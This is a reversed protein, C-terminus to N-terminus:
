LLFSQEPLPGASCGCRGWDLGRLSHLLESIDGAGGGCVRGRLRVAGRQRPAAAAPRCLSSGPSLNRQEYGCGSVDTAPRRAPRGGGSHLTAAERDSDGHRQRGPRGPRPHPWRQDRLHVARRQSALQAVSRQRPGQPYDVSVDRASPPLHPRVQPM